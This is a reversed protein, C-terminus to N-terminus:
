SNNDRKANLDEGGMEGMHMWLWMKGQQLNTKALSSSRTQKHSDIMNVVKQIFSRLEITEEITLEPLM